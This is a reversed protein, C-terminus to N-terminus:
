EGQQEKSVGLREAQAELFLKTREVEAELWEEDGNVSLDSKLTELEAEYAQKIEETPVWEEPFRLIFTLDVIRRLKRQRKQWEEPMSENKRQRANFFDYVEDM